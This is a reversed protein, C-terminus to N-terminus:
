DSCDHENRDNHRDQIFRRNDDAKESMEALDRRPCLDDDHIATAIIPCGIETIRNCIVDHGGRKSACFLHVGACFDGGAVNKPKDVSIRSNGGTSQFGDGCSQVIWAHDPSAKTQLNHRRPPNVSHAIRNPINTNPRTADSEAIASKEAPAINKLACSSIGLGAQEFIRFEIAFQFPAALDPLEALFDLGARAAVFRKAWNSGDTKVSKNHRKVDHSRWQWHEFFNHAPIDNPRGTRRGSGVNGFGVWRITTNM